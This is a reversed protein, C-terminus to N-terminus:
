ICVCGSTSSSSPYQPFTANPTHQVEPMSHQTATATGFRFTLHYELKLGMETEFSSNLNWGQGLKYMMRRSFDGRGKQHTGLSQGGWSLPRSEFSYSLVLTLSLRSRCIYTNTHKHAICLECLFIQVGRPSRHNQISNLSKPFFTLFAGRRSNQRQAHTGGRWCCELFRWVGFGSNGSFM